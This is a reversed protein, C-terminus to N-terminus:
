SISNFYKIFQLKPDDETGEILKHMGMHHERCLWIYEERVYDEHHIEAKENGCITCSEKINYRRIIKGIRQRIRHLEKEYPKSLLKKSAKKYINKLNKNTEKQKKYHIKKMISWQGSEEMKEKYKKNARKQAESTKM